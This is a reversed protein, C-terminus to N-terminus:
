WHNGARDDGRRAPDVHTARTATSWHLVPEEMSMVPAVWAAHRMGVMIADIQPL